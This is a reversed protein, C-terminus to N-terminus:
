AVYPPGRPQECFTEPSAPVDNARAPVMPQATGVLVWAVCPLKPAVFSPGGATCFKCHSEGNRHRGPAGRDGDAPDVSHQCIDFGSAGELAPSAALSIPAFGALISHLVLAYAAVWSV